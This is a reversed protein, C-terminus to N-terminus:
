KAQDADLLTAIREAATTGCIRYVTEGPHFGDAAMVEANLAFDVEVHSVDARGSAWEALARDHRQADAGAIWRLPQPLGPFQHVPPLPMFFVHLVGFRNRLHNALADRQAVARLSPVQEIVDNVGLVVVALDAVSAPTQELLALCQATSVGSQALLRWAVPREIKAALSTTLHGALAQEQRAVGVGAASSDGAILVRVPPGKFQEGAVGERPGDAEPLRPLRARTLMAQAVLLPSLALKAILSM